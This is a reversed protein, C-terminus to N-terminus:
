DDSYKFQHFDLYKEYWKAVPEIEFEPLSGVVHDISGFEPIPAMDNFPEKLHHAKFGPM